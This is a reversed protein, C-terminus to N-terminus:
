NCIIKYGYITIVRYIYLMYIYVTFVDILETSKKKTIINVRIYIYIDKKKKQYLEM